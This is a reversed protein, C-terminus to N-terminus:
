KGAEEDEDGFFSAKRIQLEEARVGLRMALSHSAAVPAALHGQAQDDDGM